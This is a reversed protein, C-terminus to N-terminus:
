LMGNLIDLIDDALEVAVEFMFNADSYNTPIKSYESVMYRFEEVSQYVSWSSHANIYLLLEDAAWISYASQDFNMEPWTSTPQAMNARYERIVSLVSMDDIM